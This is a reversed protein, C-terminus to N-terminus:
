NLENAFVSSSISIWFKNVTFFTFVHGIFFKHSEAVHICFTQAYGMPEHCFRFFQFVPREYPQVEAVNNRVLVRHELSKQGTFLPGTFVLIYILYISILSSSKVRSFYIPPFYGDRDNTKTGPGKFLFGFMGSGLM